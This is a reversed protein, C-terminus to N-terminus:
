TKYTEFMKKMIGLAALKLGPTKKQILKHFEYNDDSNTSTSSNIVKKRQYRILTKQRESLLANVLFKNQRSGRIVKIIDL